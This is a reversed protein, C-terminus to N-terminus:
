PGETVRSGRVTGYRLGSTSRLSTSFTNSCSPSSHRSLGPKTSWWGMKKSRIPIQIEPHLIHM